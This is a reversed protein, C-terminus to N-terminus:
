QPIVVARWGMMCVGSCWATLESQMIALTELGYDHQQMRIIICFIGTPHTRTHTHIHTHTHLITYTCILM